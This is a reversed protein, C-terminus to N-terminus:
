PRRRARKRRIADLLPSTDVVVSLLSNRAALPQLPALALHVAYSTDRTWVYTWKQGAQFCGGAPCPIPQNHNFSGDQIFSVTNRGLEEWALQYLGDMDPTTATVPQDQSPPVM